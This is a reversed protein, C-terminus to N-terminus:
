RWRRRDPRQRPVGLRVLLPRAPLRQGGPRDRRRRRQDGGLHRDGQHARAAPLRQRPDVADVAHDAGRRRGDAGPLRDAARDDHGVVALAAGVLFILLGLQLAGKRGFRDGLAGATFLLGAFVLSYAAVVWQLQSNTAHLDESLTPLAVNLSSNGVFVILLSLCLVALTWWRRPDLEAGAVQAEDTMTRDQTTPPHRVDPTRRVPPRPRPRRARGLDLVATRSSGRTSRWTCGATIAAVTVRLEFTTDADRGFRDRLAEVVTAEWTHRREIARTRLAPTAAIVRKRLLLTPLDTEYTAVLAQM